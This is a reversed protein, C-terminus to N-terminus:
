DLNRKSHRHGLGGLGGGGNKVVAEITISQRPERISDRHSTNSQNARGSCVQDPRGHFLM